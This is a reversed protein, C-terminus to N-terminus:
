QSQEGTNPLASLAEDAIKRARDIASWINDASKNVRIAKIDVLAETLTKALAEATTARSRAAKAHMIVASTIAQRGANIRKLREVETEAAKLRALISLATTPNWAALYPLVQYVHDGTACLALVIEDNIFSSGVPHAKLKLEDMHAFWEMGPTAAKATSELTPIDLQDTMAPDNPTM